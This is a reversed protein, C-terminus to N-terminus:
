SHLAQTVSAFDTGQEPNQEGPERQVQAKPEAHWYQHKLTCLGVAEKM